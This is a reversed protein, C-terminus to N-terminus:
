TQSDRVAAGAMATEIRLWKTEEETSERAYLFDKDTLKPLSDLRRPETWDLVQSLRVADAPLGSSHLNQFWRVRLTPDDLSSELLATRKPALQIQLGPITGIDFGFVQLWDRLRYDSIRSLAFLQFLSPSFHGHRLDYYLNHPLYYPLRRGFLTASRQSARHLTLHKSALVSKVREALEANSGAEIQSPVTLGRTADKERSAGV